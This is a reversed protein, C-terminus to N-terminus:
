KIYQLLPSFWEEKALIRNPVRLTVSNQLNEFNVVSDSKNRRVVSQVRFVTSPDLLRLENKYWNSALVEGKPVSKLSYTPVKLNDNVKHIQFVEYPVAQVDYSRKFPGEERNIRVYQNVAFVPKERRINQYRQELQDVLIHAMGPDDAQNPTMKIGRHYSNRYTSLAQNLYSVYERSKTEHMHMTLMREITKQLREM